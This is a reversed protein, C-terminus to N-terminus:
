KYTDKAANKNHVAQAQYIRKLTEAKLLIAQANQPFYQLSSDCCRLIFGNYYNHTKHEYGKALDLICLAIAERNSLTDMYIGSQVGKLPLYGSAMIWGDIPFSGSTLETNYWGIKKCRNQIYMHNPALSLWCSAGM